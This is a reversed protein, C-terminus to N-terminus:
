GHCGLRDVDSWPRLSRLRGFLDRFPTLGRQFDEGRQFREWLSLLQQWAAADSAMLFLQRAYRHRHGERDVAAFEEDPELLDQAEEALFELGGIRQVARVFDKLEGAVELVIVQEPALAAPEDASTLRGQEFAQTLRALEPGLRQQQARPGPGVLRPRPSQRTRRTRTQPAGLPLAPLEPM